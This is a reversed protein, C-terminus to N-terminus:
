VLEFDTNKREWIKISSVKILTKPDDLLDITLATKQDSTFSYAVCNSKPLDQVAGNSVFNRPKVDFRYVNRYEQDLSFM